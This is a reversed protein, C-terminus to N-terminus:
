RDETNDSQKLDPIWDWAVPEMETTTARWGEKVRTLRLRGKDEGRGNQLTPVNNHLSDRSTPTDSAESSEHVSPPLVGATISTRRVMRGPPLLSHSSGKRASLM